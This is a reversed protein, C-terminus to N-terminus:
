ESESTSDSHAMISVTDNARIYLVTEENANINHSFSSKSSFFSGAELVVATDTNKSDYNAKGKIIVSKFDKATTFIHGKKGKAFKVLYGKLEGKIDPLDSKQWLHAIEVGDGKLLESDNENLWILNSAHVNIPRENTDFEAEPPKVLYPGSDIELYILNAKRNAATIHNHGAPQTWFSLSPLWMHEASPTDNHLLGEIVIGRYTINHIHPPSSFGEKFKVLMGTAQNKARDGWLDTAAPSQDGRLPNLYGWQLEASSVVSSNSEHNEATANFSATAILLSGALLFSTLVLSARHTTNNM